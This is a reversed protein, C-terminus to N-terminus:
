GKTKAIVCTVSVPEQEKNPIIVFYTDDEPATFDFENSLFHARKQEHIHDSGQELADYNARDYVYCDVLGNAKISVHIVEGAKLEEKFYHRHHPTIITTVNAILRANSKRRLRSVFSWTGAIVLSAFGVGLVVYNYPTPIGASYTAVAIVAVIVGAVLTMAEKWNMVRFNTSIRARRLVGRKRSVTFLVSQLVNNIPLVAGGSVPGDVRQSLRRGQEGSSRSPRSSDVRL